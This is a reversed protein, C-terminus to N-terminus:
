FPIDDDWLEVKVTSLKSIMNDFVLKRSPSSLDKFWNIFDTLIYCPVEENPYFKFGKKVLVKILEQVNHVYDEFCNKKIVNDLQKLFAEEDEILSYDRSFSAICNMISNTFKQYIKKDDDNIEMVAFDKERIVSKIETFSQFRHNKDLMMMKSLVTRYSFDEEAGTIRLLRGFLEALYFMDTRADYKGEFYENPLCDLGSRNIIEVMSDEDSDIPSFTKGLGFDIIKVTGDSTVM